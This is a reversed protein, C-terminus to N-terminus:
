PVFTVNARLARLRAIAAAWEQQSRFGYRKNDHVITYGYGALGCYVLEFANKIHDDYVYFGSPVSADARVDVIEREVMTDNVVWAGEVFGKSGVDPIDHWLFDPWRTSGGEPIAPCWDEPEGREDRRLLYEMTASGFRATIDVRWRETRADPNTALKTTHLRTVVGNWVAAEEDTDACINKAERIAIHLLADFQSPDDAKMERSLTVTTPVVMPMRVSEGPLAERVWKGDRQVWRFLDAAIEHKAPDWYVRFVRRKAADDVSTGLFFRGEHPGRAGESLDIVTTETHQRLYGTHEDIEEVVIRAELRAGSVDIVNYDGEVTRLYHPNAAFSTRELDAIRRLFVTAMDAASGDPWDIKTVTFADTDRSLPWRYSRGPGEGRFQLRDPLSDNRAGGFHHVGRQIKGTGDIRRYLSGLELISTVMELLLDRSYIQTQETDSRYEEVRPVPEGTLTLGLQEQVAKLDCHGAWSVWDITGPQVYGNGDWDFRLGQRLRPDGHARQFTLEWDEKPAARVHEPPVDVSRGDQLHLGGSPDRYIWAGAHEHEVAPDVRLLEYSPTLTSPDPVESAIMRTERDILLAGLTREIDTEDPVDFAYKHRMLFDLHAMAQRRQRRVSERTAPRLVTMAESGEVPLTQLVAELWHVFPADHRYSHYTGTDADDYHIAGAFAEDELERVARHADAGLRWTSVAARVQEFFAGLRQARINNVFYRESGKPAASADLDRAHLRTENRQLEARVRAVLEDVSAPRADAEFVTGSPSPDIADPFEIKMRPHPRGGEVREFMHVRARGGPMLPENRVSKIRVGLQEAEAADAFARYAENDVVKM